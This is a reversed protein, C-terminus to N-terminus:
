QEGRWVRGAGVRCCLWPSPDARGAPGWCGGEWPVGAGGRGPVWVARPGATTKGPQACGCAARETSRRGGVARVAGGRQPCGPAALEELLIQMAAFPVSASLLLVWCGEAGRISRDFNENGYM